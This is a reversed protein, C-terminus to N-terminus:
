SFPRYYGCMKWNFLWHEYWVAYTCLDAFSEKWLPQEGESKVLFLPVIHSINVIDSAIPTAERTNLLYNLDSPLM